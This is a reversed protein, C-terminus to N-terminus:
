PFLGEHHASIGRPIEIVGGSPLYSTTPKLFFFPEKPLTNKLEKVHDVYNRGIAVIKTQEINLILVPPYHQRVKKGSRIFSVAAM